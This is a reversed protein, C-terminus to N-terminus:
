AEMTTMVNNSFYRRDNDIISANKYMKRMNYETNSRVMLHGKKDILSKFFMSKIDEDNREKEICTLLYDIGGKLVNLFISRSSLNVNHSV